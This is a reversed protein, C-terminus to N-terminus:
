DTDLNSEVKLNKKLKFRNINGADELKDFLPVKTNLQRIQNKVTHPSKGLSKAIDLYSLAMDRHALFVSLIKKEQPSLLNVDLMTSGTSNFNTAVLRSMPPNPRSVSPILQSIEPKEHKIPHSNVINELKALRESQGTLTHLTDTIKKDQDALCNKVEALDARLKGIDRRVRGFASRVAKEHAQGRKRSDSKTRKTLWQWFGM